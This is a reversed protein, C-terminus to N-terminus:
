LVEYFYLRFSSGEFPKFVDRLVLEGDPSIKQDELICCVRNVRAYQLLASKEAHEPFYVINKGALYTIKRGDSNSTMVNGKYKKIKGAGEVVYQKRSIFRTGEIIFFNHVHPYIDSMIFLPIVIISLITLFIKSQIANARNIKKVDNIFVIMGASAFISWLPLIPAIMRSMFNAQTLVLSAPIVVVITPLLLFLTSPQFKHINGLHKRSILYRFAFFTIVLLYITGSFLWRIGATISKFVLFGYTTPREALFSGHSYANDMFRLSTANENLRLAEPFIGELYLTEVLVSKPYNYLDTTSVTKLWTISLIVLIVLPICNIFFHHLKIYRLLVFTILMALFVPFMVFKTISALAMVIGSLLFFVGRKEKYGYWFFLLALTCLLTIFPEIVIEASDSISQPYIAVFLTAITAEKEGYVNRALNYICALVGLSSLLSLVKGSTIVSGFVQAFIAIALPYMPPLIFRGLTGFESRSQGIQGRLINESQELYRSSDWSVGDSLNFIVIRFLFGIFLIKIFINDSLFKPLRM